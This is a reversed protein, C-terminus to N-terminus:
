KLTDVAAREIVLGKKYRELFKAFGAREKEDAMLTKSPAKAFVKNDLYDSLSEGEEGWLRYACLLAMGYPGGEGATEMVSVPARVTASLLTQGVGPTKFLGGHGYLKEVTM